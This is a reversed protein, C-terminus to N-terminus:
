SATQTHLSSGGSRFLVRWEVNFQLYLLQGYWTIKFFLWDKTTVSKRQPHLQNANEATEWKAERGEACTELHATKVHVSLLVLWKFPDFIHSFRPFELHPGSYHSDSAWPSCDVTGFLLCLKWVASDARWYTKYIRRRMTILSRNQM